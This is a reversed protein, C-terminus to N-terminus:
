SAAERVDRCTSAVSQLASRARQVASADPPRNGYKVEEFLQTLVQMAELPVGASVVASLFERPTMAAHRSVGHAERVADQMRAYCETIADPYSRPSAPDLSELAREAQDALLDRLDGSGRRRRRIRLIMVILFAGLAVVMVSVVYTVAPSVEDTIVDQPDVAPGGGAGPPGLAAGGEQETRAEHEPPTPNIFSLAILAIGVLIASRLLQRRYTKFFLSIVILAATAFVLVRVIIRHGAVAGEVDLEGAGPAELRGEPTRIRYGTGFRLSEVGLALVILALIVAIAIAATRTVLEAYLASSRSDLREGLVATPPQYSTETRM